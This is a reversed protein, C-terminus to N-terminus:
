LNSTTRETVREKNNKKSEHYIKLEELWRKIVVAKEYEEHFLIYKM